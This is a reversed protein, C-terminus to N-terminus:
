SDVDLHLPKEQQQIFFAINTLTQTTEEKQLGKIKYATELYKHRTAYDPDEHTNKGIRTVKTAKLGEKHVRTLLKNSLQKELLEQFGKSETLKSPTKATEVSYHADRMAKSVNGGNEVLNSLAKKQKITPM